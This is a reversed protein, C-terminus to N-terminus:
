LLQSFGVRSLMLPESLFGDFLEWPTAEWAPVPFCEEVTYAPGVWNQCLSIHGYMLKALM